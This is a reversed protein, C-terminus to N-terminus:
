TTKEFTKLNMEYVWSNERYSLKAYPLWCIDDVFIFGNKNLVKLFEYMSPNDFNIIKSFLKFNFIGTKTFFLSCLIARLWTNGSKPFSSLWLIM